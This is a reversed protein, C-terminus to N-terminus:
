GKVNEMIFVGKVNEMIFVSPSFSRIIRLYETYLFHRKDSEFAKENNPRLRSRGALSYAQCPPGGILVWESARGIAERIWGDITKHPTIGLEACRAESLAKEGEAKVLPHAFLQERQIKGKV